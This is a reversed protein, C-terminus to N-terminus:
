WQQKYEEIGKAFDSFREQTVAKYLPHDAGDPHYEQLLYTMLCLHNRVNGIECQTTRFTIDIQPMNDGIAEVIMEIAVTAKEVYRVNGESCVARGYGLAPPCGDTCGNYSTFTAGYQYDHETFRSKKYQKIGKEFDSFQEQTVAKYLPHHVGDPMYEQMFYTYLCLNTYADFAQDAYDRLLISNEPIHAGMVTKIAEVAYEALEVYKACEAPCSGFKNCVAREEGLSPPCGNSSRTMSTEFLPGYKYDDEDLIKQLPHALM